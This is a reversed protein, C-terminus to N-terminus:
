MATPPRTWLASVLTTVMYIDTLMPPASGWFLDVCVPSVLKGQKLSHALIARWLRGFKM